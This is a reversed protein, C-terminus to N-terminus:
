RAPFRVDKELRAADLGTELLKRSIESGYNRAMCLLVCENTLVPTLQGEGTECFPAVTEADKLVATLATSRRPPKGNPRKRLRDLALWRRGSPRRSPRESQSHYHEIWYNWREPSLKCIRQLYSEMRDLNGEEWYKSLREWDCIYMAALLDAIEVVRAARSQALMIAVSEAQALDRTLWHSASERHGDGPGGGDNAPRPGADRAPRRGFLTM